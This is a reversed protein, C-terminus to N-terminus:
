WPTYGLGFLVLLAGFALGKRLGSGPLWRRVAVFLVGVPTGLFAGFILMNMTAATFVPDTGAAYAVIRMAIRSGIGGVLIGAVLGSLVGIVLWRLLHKARRM